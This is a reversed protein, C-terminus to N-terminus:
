INIGLQCGLVLADAIKGTGGPNIVYQLDPQFFISGKRFRFKYTWELVSEYNQVGITPDLQQEREESNSLDSSFKGYLLGFGVTDIPRSEFMGRCAFGATFYYPLQSVSENPSILFSGFVGFGRNSTPEGFPVLIQDFLTYCGWNGRKTESPQAYGVTKYDTFESNDYWFGVKYDGLRRSDGPLGNLQYGAEGMVFVPGNMSMDAGNHDINRIAPDGNYIGGMIYTRQTPKLKIRAGWTANPYATMGPSNFFIGVPNGDFGNQMFLYDYASVLFDDGAAIRGLSTEVRDNLFKQVYALDILHFAQGGYDQQITFVNGVHKASLSEGDRQSMSVLFSGGELKIIKDLDFLLNLGINDAYAVGQNKGGIPNGATDSVYTLTPTVGFGELKPLLGGWDGLLHDPTLLLQFPRANIPVKSSDSSSEDSLGTETNSASQKEVVAVGPTANTAANSGSTQFSQQQAHAAISSLVLLLVMSIVNPKKWLSFGGRFANDNEGARCGSPLVKLKKVNGGGLVVDDPELAAILRKVVDAVFEKWKKKGYKNLGRIGVYDEFTAKKYPLHGLELPEVIGDVIMASGLGTGLGLFLMKGRKYSGLAQMAADNVMKVPCKLAGKFNFSVWGKGLNWPDVIPRNQHVPGPYGISVVDYEWDAVLKKVESVMRKPTLTPGSEFERHNKQGTALVKVHTGGIDIVLVKKM